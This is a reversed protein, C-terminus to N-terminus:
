SPRKSAANQFLLKGFHTTILQWGDKVPDICNRCMRPAERADMRVSTSGLLSPFSHHQSTTPAKLWSFIPPIIKSNTKSDLCRDSLRCTEMRQTKWCTLAAITCLFCIGQPNDPRDSQAEAGSANWFLHYNTVVLKGGPRHMQLLHPAARERMWASWNCGFFNQFSHNQAATFSGALFPHYFKVVQKARGLVSRPARFTEIDKEKRGQKICLAGRGPLHSQPHTQFCFIELAPRM